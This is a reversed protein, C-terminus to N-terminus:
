VYSFELCSNVGATITKWQDNIVNFRNEGKTTIRYYVRTRGEVTKSIAKLFGKKELGHLTPYIVGEALAIAENTSMRIARVIEYGYMEQRMVLRLVLLEPVGSMFSANSKAMVKYRYNIPM